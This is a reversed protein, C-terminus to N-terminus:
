ANPNVMFRDKADTIFLFTNRDIVGLELLAIVLEYWDKWGVTECVQYADKPYPYDGGIEIFM